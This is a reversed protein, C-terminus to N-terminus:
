WPVEATQNLANWATVCYDWAERYNETQNTRIWDLPTMGLLQNVREKKGWGVEKCADLFQKGSMTDPVVLKDPQALSGKPAEQPEPPSEPATAPRSRQKPPTPKEDDPAMEEAPTPQYGALVAVWAYKQRYAKATARTQAMSMVANHKATGSKGKAVFEDFGCVSIAGGVVLGTRDDVLRIKARYGIMEGDIMMPEVWEPDPGVHNFAGITEWAEVRLYKKGQIPIFLKQKEVIDMLSDAQEKALAVVEKPKPMALATDDIPVLETEATM